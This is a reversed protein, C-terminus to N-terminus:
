SYEERQGVWQLMLAEELPLLADSPKNPFLDQNVGTISSRVVPVLKPLGQHGAVTAREAKSEAIPLSSFPDFGDHEPSLRCMRVAQGTEM